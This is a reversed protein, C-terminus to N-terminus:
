AEGPEKARTTGLQWPGGDAYVEFSHLSDAYHLVQGKLEKELTARAAGSLPSGTVSALTATLEVFNAASIRGTDGLDLARCGRLVAAKHVFLLAPVAGELAPTEPLVPREDDLGEDMAHLMELYSVTDNYDRNGKIVEVIQILRATDLLPVEDDGSVEEAGLWRWGAILEAMQAFEDQNQDIHRFFRMLAQHLPPGYEKEILGAIRRLAPKMWPEPFSVPGAFRVLQHLVAGLESPEDGFLASALQHRQADPLSPLMRRLAERAVPPTVIGDHLTDFLATLGSLSLDADLTARALEIVQLPGLHFWRVRPSALLSGYEVLDGVEPALRRLLDDWHLEGCEAELAACLDARPVLGSGAADHERCQRWLENRSLSILGLSHQVMDAEYLEHARPGLADQVRTAVSKAKLDEEAADVSPDMDHEVMELRLNHLPPTAPAVGGARRLVAVAGRNDYAGAYRSASFVTLLRDDHDFEYGRGNRPVRHSRILMSLGAENLFDWTHDKGFMAAVRGRTSPKLGTGSHPDAWQCDFLLEEDMTWKKGRQEEERTLPTPYSRKWVKPHLRRLQDLSISKTRFLGGHVVFVEEGIVAFLPLLKFLRKFGALVQRNYKSLCEEAFGGGMKFSRSFMQENEHNGRLVHVSQPYRLAFAMILLWIEVAFHGRDVIDGNFLYVVWKSPPGQTAMIHLVDTLQGHTDGIVVVRPDPFDPDEAPIPIDIVPSTLKELRACYANVLGEAIDWPLPSERPSRQLTALLEHPDVRLESPDISPLRRLVKPVAFRNWNRKLQSMFQDGVDRHMLAMMEQADISGFGQNVDLPGTRRVATTLARSFAERCQVKFGRDKALRALRLRATPPWMVRSAAVHMSAVARAM